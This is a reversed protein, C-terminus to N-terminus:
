YILISHFPSEYMKTDKELFAHVDFWEVTLSTLNKRKLEPLAAIRPVAPKKPIKHVQIGEPGGDEAKRPRIPMRM